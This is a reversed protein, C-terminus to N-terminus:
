LRTQAKERDPMDELIDAVSRMIRVYMEDKNKYQIGMELPQRSGWLLADANTGLERCLRAFTDLSMSRTGREIQGIFNLSIGCKKALKEQSWGKAKRLERIRAGTQAYDLKPM